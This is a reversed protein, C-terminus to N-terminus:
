RLVKRGNIVFIGNRPNEVRRGQLDFVTDNEERANRVVSEVGTLYNLYDEIQPLQYSHVSFKCEGTRVWNDNLDYMETKKLYYKKDTGWPADEREGQYYPNEIYDYLEYYSSREELLSGDVRYKALMGDSNYEYDYIQNLGGSTTYTENILRGAGDFTFVDTGSAVRKGDVAGYYTIVYQNSSNYGCSAYETRTLYWRGDRWEFAEEVGAFQDYSDEDNDYFPQISHEYVIPCPMSPRDIWIDNCRRFKEGNVIEMDVDTVNGEDDYKYKPTCYVREHVAWCYVDTKVDSRNGDLDEYYESYNSGEHYGSSKEAVTGHVKSGGDYDEDVWEWEDDKSERKCEGCLEWYKDIDGFPMLKGDNAYSQYYIKYITASLSDPSVESRYATVNKGKNRYSLIYCCYDINSPGLNSVSFHDVEEINKLYRCEDYETYNGVGAEADIEAKVERNGWQNRATLVAPGFVRQDGVTEYWYQTQWWRGDEAKMEIRWWEKGRSGDPLIHWYRAQVCLGDANTVYDVDMSIGKSLWDETEYWKIESADTVPNGDWDRFVVLQAKGDTSYEDSWNRFKTIWGQENYEYSSYEAKPRGPYNVEIGDLMLRKENNASSAGSQAFATEAYCVALVMLPLVFWVNVSKRM